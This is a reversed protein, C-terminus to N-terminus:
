LILVALLIAGVVIEATSWHRCIAKYALSGLGMTSLVSTTEM